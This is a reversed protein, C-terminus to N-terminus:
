RKVNPSGNAILGMTLARSYGFKLRGVVSNFVGGVMLNLALANSFCAFDNSSLKVLDDVVNSFYLLNTSCCFCISNVWFCCCCASKKDSENDGGIFRFFLSMGPSLPHM